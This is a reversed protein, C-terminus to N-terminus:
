TNKESFQYLIGGRGGRKGVGWGVVVIASHCLPPVLLCLFCASVCAIWYCDLVLHIAGNMLLGHQTKKSFSM